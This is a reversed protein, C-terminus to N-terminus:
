HRRKAVHFVVVRSRGACKATRPTRCARVSALRGGTRMDQACVGRLLQQMTKGAYVSLLCAFNAICVSSTVASPVEQWFLFPM